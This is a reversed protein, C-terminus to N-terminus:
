RASLWAKSQSFQLGQMSSFCALFIFCFNQQQEVTRIGQQCEQLQEHVQEQAKATSWPAGSSIVYQLDALRNLTAYDMRGEAGARRPRLAAEADGGGVEAGGVAAAMLAAKRAAPSKGAAAVAPARARKFGPAKRADLPHPAATAAAPLREGAATAAVPQPNKRPRSRRQVDAAGEAGLFPDKPDLGKGGAESPGGQMPAAQGQSHAWGPAGAAPAPPTSAAPLDLLRLVAAISRFCRGTASNRFYVDAAGALIAAAGPVVHGYLWMGLLQLAGRELSSSGPVAAHTRM